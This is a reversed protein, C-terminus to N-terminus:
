PRVAPIEVKLGVAREKLYLELSILAPDGYAFPEARIGTMCNRLRRQLSGMGQWELRFMPYGNPHGQPIVNGALRRGWNDDHCMACSLNLQGLRQSFLAKGTERVSALRPDGVPEVPMGRSQLGIYATVSLLPPSERVWRAAGQRDTRCQQIRGALDILQGSPGDIQPYRQAAGKMTEAADGHCATCAQKGTPAERWLAEGERVALMGPNRADDRQMAQTDHGMQDFGSKRDAPAIGQAQTASTLACFALALHLAAKM